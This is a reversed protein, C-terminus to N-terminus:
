VQWNGFCECWLSSIQLCGKYSWPSFMYFGLTIVGAGWNLGVTGSGVKGAVGVVESEGSITCSGGSEVSDWSRFHCGGVCCALLKEAASVRTTTLKPSAANVKLQSGAMLPNSIDKGLDTQKPSSLEKCFGNAEPSPLEQHTNSMTFQILKKEYADRIFHHRIEIHKTKSHFVLNLSEIKTPRQSVYLNEECSLSTFDKSYGSVDVDAAEEDKVLPKHTEIPTSATKVSLFDFKKLIKAVYKDRSIFIGNEKQKVEEDITGYLFASKVDMQYVIFSMYSAFALFIRIAEIRAVLAFVEDYDIGEEQRHGQAVLRAKNRVVVRREDKKNRNVWKTGIAKWSEDELAQSIKKPEIQSLFCAFLCHQFDKHNNRQQKQIYNVLAHAEFNKNMNSMTQVAPMPDRLIQTKPHITHIRTTPTLSANVTTELNNFDTVMDEHDYSSDTFIGESPSAYIDKIHPMLPDDPYSHEGNNFARSPGATNLPTSATNILNTNSTSANKIDHTAEKRPSEAADNAEKEQRKLKELEELFIQEVQSVTSNKAEKPGASKNAQNEVLVPKFNMSNTLYDLDFMLAHGKRAVNPKNELFNVHLNEKVRKTELHYVRFAKSKLSYRVLFESDSKGDFKGLQNITNLITVHCGFPRLYNTMPKKSTLLEYPTKNQPKTVLVRNLVYCTTNVAEAWFTTPLLSDALMTRATKILTMNKREAVRNQQPTRANSYEGKILLGKHQKRKQCAVCTHDNKFSKSPLGRVLNGKMLKHLNKFNVHGLRRHWKNSEDISAKAFLCALDGSPDINKLNFRYMNHQRPIKLLVQNEDPLKFDPSLVLCDIDNFLVKNKKDCMQSVSFLNYHKLEEVYYGDEFELRDAKIKGKSTIRGNSGGFAVSGDHKVSDTFVFSPKEKDKQVNSVSDNDCDSEYEEINPADTWVKPECVVKSANEVLEPMSTFTEVSSDSECFAYESPKFDSEDASTQKPCYTFKSYDIEVDSRFPMYNEIMLPPVAHMGNAYRDNVPTDELDSAKKLALTCATIEVSADSLKDRQEDYLKKLRAYSEEYAKSCSKVKNDSGSNSADIRRSDQNWKARCGRAFYRMRHCNFCKVKTKDFSVLDKTDFQLERRTRKHFKKIRMFIMAVPWKLNMEEIDDDNIEDTYSSSGEKQSKSVSRSSVTYATSIDNTIEKVDAMKHFKALHDEPLAMLLTTKAKRENKRAVVEKAAKPPLVKIMGNTDLPSTNSTEPPDGNNDDGKVRFISKPFQRIRTETIDLEKLCELQGIEAPLEAIRLCKSLDLNVLKPCEAPIMLKVLDYCDRLKPFPKEKWFHVLNSHDMQLGVLYNAQFSNPLSSFPYYEWRLFRLANPLNWNWNWNTGHQVDLQLFRLEKMNALGKMLIEINLGGM